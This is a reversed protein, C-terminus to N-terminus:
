VSATVICTYACMSAAHARLARGGTGRVCAICEFEELFVICPENAKAERFKAELVANTEEKLTLLEPCQTPQHARSHIAGDAACRLGCSTRKSRMPLSGRRCYTLAHIGGIRASMGVPDQWVGATRVAPHEKVLERGVTRVHEQVKSGPGGNAATGLTCMLVLLVVRLSERM